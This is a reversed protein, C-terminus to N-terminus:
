SHGVTRRQVSHPHRLHGTQHTENDSATAFHGRVYQQLHETLSGLRPRVEVTQRDFRSARVYRTAHAVGYGCGGGSNRIGLPMESRVAADENGLRENERKPLEFGFVM